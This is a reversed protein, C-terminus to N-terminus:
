TKHVIADNGIAGIKLNPILGTICKRECTHVLLLSLLYCSVYYLVLLVNTKWQFPSIQVLTSTGGAFSSAKCGSDKFTHMSSHVLCPPHIFTCKTHYMLMEPEQGLREFMYASLCYDIPHSVVAM